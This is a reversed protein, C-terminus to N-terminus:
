KRNGISYANNNELDVHKLVSVTSSIKAFIRVMKIFLIFYHM